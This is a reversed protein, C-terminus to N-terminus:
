IAILDILRTRAQIRDVDALRGIRQAIHSNSLSQLRSRIVCEHKLGAAVLDQVRVDDAWDSAKATTIMALLTEGHAGNRVSGSVVVAPRRKFAAQDVYPFAVVVVDGAECIM